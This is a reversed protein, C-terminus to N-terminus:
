AEEMLSDEGETLDDPVEPISNQVLYLLRLAKALGEEDCVSQDLEAQLAALRTQQEHVTARKTELQQELSAISSELEGLM